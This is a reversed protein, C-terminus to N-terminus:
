KLKNKDVRSVKVIQAQCYQTVRKLLFIYQQTHQKIVM